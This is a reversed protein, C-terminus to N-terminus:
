LILLSSSTGHRKLHSNYDWSNAFRPQWEAIWTQPLIELSTNRENLMVYRLCCWMEVYLGWVVSQDSARTASSDRALAWAGMKSNTISGSVRLITEIFSTISHIMFLVLPDWWWVRTNTMWSYWGRLGHRRFLSFSCLSILKIRPYKALFASDCAMGQKREIELATSKIMSLSTEGELYSDKMSNVDIWIRYSTKFIWTNTYYEYSNMYFLEFKM